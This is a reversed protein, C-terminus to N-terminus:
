FYTITFFSFRQIHGGAPPPLLSCGHKQNLVCMQDVRRGPRVSDPIDQNFSLFDYFNRIVNDRLLRGTQGNQIGFAQGGNGTQHVGVYM